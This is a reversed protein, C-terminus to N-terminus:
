TWLRSLWSWFGSKPKAPPLTAAPKAAQESQDFYRAKARRDHARVGNIQEQTMDGAWRVKGKDIWYHSRCPFSWNGISPHLSVSIGDYTLKWDTPSLPTVVELGCGCCCKHAVTAYEMSVYLTREDLRDPVSTVFETELVIPQKM